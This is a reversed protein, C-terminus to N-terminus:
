HPIVKSASSVIIPMLATGSNSQRCAPYRVQLFGAATPHKNSQIKMKNQKSVQCNKSNHVCYTATKRIKQTISLLASNHHFGFM